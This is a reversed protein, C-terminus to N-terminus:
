GSLMIARSCGVQRGGAAFQIVDGFFLSVRLVTDIYWWLVLRDLM